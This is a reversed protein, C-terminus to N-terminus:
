VVPTMRFLEVGGGPAVDLATYPGLVFDPLAARRWVDRVHMTTGLPIGTQSFCEGDCTVNAPSAGTNVFVVAWSGDDLTRGWVNTTTPSPPAGPVAPTLDGGWMRFGQRGLPDQNINIVQTRVATGTWPRGRLPARARARARM